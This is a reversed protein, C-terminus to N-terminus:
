LFRLIFEQPTYADSHFLKLYTKRLMPGFVQKSVISTDPVFDPNSVNLHLLHPNVARISKIKLIRHYKKWVLLIEVTLDTCLPAHPRMETEVPMGRYILAPHIFVDNTNTNDYITKFLRDQCFTNKIMHIPLNDQLEMEYLYGSVEVVKQHARDNRRYTEELIRWLSLERELAFATSYSDMPNRKFPIPDYRLLFYDRKKYFITFKYGRTGFVTTLLIRINRSFVNQDM